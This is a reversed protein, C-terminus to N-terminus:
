FGIQFDKLFVDVNTKTQVLQFFHGKRFMQFPVLTVSRFFGKSTTRPELSLCCKLMDRWVKVDCAQAYKPKKSLGKAWQVPQFPCRPIGPGPM